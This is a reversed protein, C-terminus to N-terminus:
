YCQRARCQHFYKQTFEVGRGLLPLQSPFYWKESEESMSISLTKDNSKLCCSTFLESAPTMKQNKVCFCFLFNEEALLYM